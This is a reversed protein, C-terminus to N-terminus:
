TEDVRAAVNLQRVPAAVNIQPSDDSLAAGGPLAEADPILSTPAPSGPVASQALAVPLEVQDVPRWVGYERNPFSAIAVISVVDCNSQMDFAVVCLGSGSTGHPMINHGTIILCVTSALVDVTHYVIEWEAPTFAAMGDVLMRLTVFRVGRRVNPLNPEIPVWPFSPLLGPIPTGNDRCLLGDIRLLAVDVLWGDDYAATLQQEGTQLHASYM